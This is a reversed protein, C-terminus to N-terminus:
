KQRLKCRRRFGTLFHEQLQAPKNCNSVHREDHLSLDQATAGIGLRIDATYAQARQQIDHLTVFVLLAEEAALEM